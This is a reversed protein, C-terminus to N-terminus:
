ISAGADVTLVHGTVMRADESALFAVAAAVDQALVPAGLRMARKTSAREDGDGIGVLPTLTLGPAVANVRIGRDAYERAAARTLGVLGSKAFSYPSMEPIGRVGAVSATNVISGAGHACMARLADLVRHWDELSTEHLPGRHGIVGANNVVVDLTDFSSALKSFAAEVSTPKTVDIPLFIARELSKAAREGAEVDVDAIVVEAGESELREAVARGIGSAAGTVLAVQGDFRHSV